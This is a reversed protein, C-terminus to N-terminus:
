HTVDPLCEVKGQCLTIPQAGTPTWQLDWEGQFKETPLAGDSLSQTQVGTLSLVAIGEAAQALDVAFTQLPPDPSQRTLRIQAMMSGNLTIPENNVDTVALGFNLGDGAYLVLDLFQPELDILTRAM